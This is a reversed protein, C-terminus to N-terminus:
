QEFKTHNTENQAMAIVHELGTYFTFLSIFDNDGGSSMVNCDHCTQIVYSYALFSLKTLTRGSLGQALTSLRSLELSLKLSESLKESGGDFPPSVDLDSTSNDLVTSTSVVFTDM